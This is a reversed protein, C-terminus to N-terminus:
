QAVSTELNTYYGKIGLLKQTKCILAENLEIVQGKTQTFKTKKSKSPQAIVQKAKEFQKEMENRDKRYRVSSFSCILYGNGTKIRISKGEERIITKDITEAKSANHDTIM